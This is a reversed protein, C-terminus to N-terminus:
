NVKSVNDKRELIPKATDDGIVHTATQTVFRICVAVIKRQFGADIIQFMEQIRDPNLFRDSEDNVVPAAHDAHSIRSSKGIADTGYDRDIGPAGSQRCCFLERGSEPQRSVGFEAFPHNQLPVRKAVRRRFPAHRAFWQSIRDFIGIEGRVVSRRVPHGDQFEHLRDWEPFGIGAKVDNFRSFVNCKLERMDGHQQEPAHLIEDEVLMKQSCPLFLKGMGICHGPGIAAM